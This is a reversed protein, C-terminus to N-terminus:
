ARRTLRPAKVKKATGKGETMSDILYYDEGFLGSYNSSFSAAMEPADGAVYNNEVPGDRGQQEIRTRRHDRHRNDGGHSLDAM